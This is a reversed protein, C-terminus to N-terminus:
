VMKLLEEEVRSIESMNSCKLATKLKKKKILAKICDLNLCVYLSRGLEKSTPNIKLAGDSLRTIKILEDRNKVTLCGQCKRQIEKM